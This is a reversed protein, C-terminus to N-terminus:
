ILYRKESLIIKALEKELKKKSHGEATILCKEHLWVSVKFGDGVKEAQYRPHENFLSMCIEQLNTKGDFNELISSSFFDTQNNLNYLKIINFLAQAAQELGAELYVAGIVAEFADALLTPKMQNQQKWEGKGLFLNEDLAIVKALKSFIEENVLAGRMKSLEGEKFHPFQKYLENTIFLNIVSDGLFELRENSPALEASFEHTYSTHTLAQLLLKQNLFTYSLIEQLHDLSSINSDSIPISKSSPGYTYLLWDAVSHFTHANNCQIANNLTISQM